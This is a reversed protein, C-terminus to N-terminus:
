FARCYSSAAVIFNLTSMSQVGSSARAKKPKGSTFGSCSASSGSTSSRRRVVNFAMSGSAINFVQNGAVRLPNSCSCCINKAFMGPPPRLFSYRHGRRPAGGAQQEALPAVVIDHREGLKRSVRGDHLVEHWKRITCGHVGPDHRDALMPLVMAEARPDELNGTFPEHDANDAEAIQTESQRERRHDLDGPPQGRAIPSPAIGM